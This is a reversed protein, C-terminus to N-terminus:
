YGSVGGGKDGIRDGVLRPRQHRHTEPPDIMLGPAPRQGRSPVQVCLRESLRRRGRPHVAPRHRVQLHEEHLLRHSAHVAHVSGMRVAHKDLLDEGPLLYFVSIWNSHLEEEEKEKKRELPM